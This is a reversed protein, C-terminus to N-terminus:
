LAHLIHLTSLCCTLDGCIQLLIVDYHSEVDLVYTNSHMTVAVVVDEYGIIPIFLFHVLLFLSLFFFIYFYSYLISRFLGFNDCFITMLAVCYYVNSHLFLLPFFYNFIYSFSKAFFFFLCLVFSVCHWYEFCCGDVLLPRQIETHRAAMCNYAITHVNCSCIFSSFSLLFFIWM